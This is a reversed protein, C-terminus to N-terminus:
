TGIKGESNRKGGLDRGEEGSGTIAKKESGLLISVEESPGKLKNVKKLKTSQTM